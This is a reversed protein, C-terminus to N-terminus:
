GGENHPLSAAVVDGSATMLACCAASFLAAIHIMRSLHLLEPMDRAIGLALVGLLMAVLAMAVRSAIFEDLLGPHDKLLTHGPRFLWRAAMWLLVYVSLFVLLAWMGAFLCMLACYVSYIKKM